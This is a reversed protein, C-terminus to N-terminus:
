APAFEVVPYLEDRRVPYPPQAPSFFYFLELDEDPDNLIQHEVGHPVFVTDGAEMRVPEGDFSITARGRHIFYFEDKDPHMDLHNAVGAAVRYWGGSVGVSGPAVPGLTAPGLTACLTQEGGRASMLPLEANRLVRGKAAKFRANSPSM